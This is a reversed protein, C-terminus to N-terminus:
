DGAYPGSEKALWQLEERRENVPEV